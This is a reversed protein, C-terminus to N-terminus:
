PVVTLTLDHGNNAGYSAQFTNRGVTITEGDPLNSFTGSIGFPFAKILTLVTGQALVGHGFDNLSILAGSNIIVKDAIVLDAKVKTTNLDAKYTGLSNFTVTTDFVMAGPNNGIGPDLFSPKRGNGIIVVGSIRGTGGLTGGKVQVAATGTASGILNTALLTGRRIVTGGHYPNGNGLTLTGNGVKTLSGPIGPDDDIVGSFTTSLGNSGILFSGAITVLGDGALSGIAVEGGTAKSLDLVGNGFIQFQAKGLVPNGEIVINGGLGGNTGSKAVVITQESLLPLGFVDILGGQAGSGSGGNGTFTAYGKAGWGYVYIQGGEPGATTAGNAIFNAGEATGVDFEAWGGEAGTVTAANGIFTSNGINGDTRVLTWGSGAGAVEGANNIFTATEAGASSVIESSGGLTGDLLGGENIIMAKGASATDGSNYGFDTFGGDYGDGTMSDGGENTIVVNEGASAGDIFYIEGSAKTGGSHAAVFHQAVGSNNTIGGGYFSLITAFVVDSVPTATITYASAGPEFVIAAVNTGAYIGDPADGIILDTVNSAGFTAVDAESYPVTQPTWNANTIWNNDVPNLNWTASGAFVFDSPLLLFASLLFALQKM